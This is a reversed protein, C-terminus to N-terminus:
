KEEEKIAIGFAILGLLLCLFGKIVLWITKHRRENYHVKVLYDKGVGTAGQKLWAGREFVTNQEQGSVNGTFRCYYSESGRNELKIYCEELKASETVASPFEQTYNFAGVWFYTCALMFCASVLMPFKKM